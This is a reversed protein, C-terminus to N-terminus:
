NGLSAVTFNDESLTSGSQFKDIIIESKRHNIQNEMEMRFAFYRGNKQLRYDSLTMAKEDRGAVDRCITKLTLFNSKEIWSIKSRFGYNKVIEDSVCIAEVKWCEKGAFMESGTLTYTFDGPNPKSMDANSFESGMFSKGKESSIIRRSKRLAPLYIWMDDDKKDYDYILLSTGKVEAPSLFKIMTKTTEGYKQTANAIQRIRINGKDDYIKLTSIMESSEFDISESAKDIIQRANQSSVRFFFFLTIFLFLNVKTKM